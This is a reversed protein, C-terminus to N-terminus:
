LNRPGFSEPLLDDLTQTKFEGKPNGFHVLMSSADPTFENMVQRCFGCPAAPPSSRTMIVIERIAKAGESVAKWIAVREACVTGGYSANEVNCGSYVKGNDALVAAGVQYRSYPAYARAMATKAAQVLKKPPLLSPRKAM